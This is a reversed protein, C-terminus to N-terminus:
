VLEDMCWCGQVLKETGARKYVLGETSAGRYVLRGTSAGRYVLGETGTGRYVLEKTCLGGLEVRLPGRQPIKSSYRVSLRRKAERSYSTHLSGSECMTLHSGRCQAETLTIWLVSIITQRAEELYFREILSDKCQGLLVIVQFFCYGVYWGKTLRPRHVDRNYIVVVKNDLEDVLVWEELIEKVFFSAFIMDVVGKNEM